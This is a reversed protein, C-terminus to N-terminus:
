VVCIGPHDLRSTVAAERLLRRRAESSFSSRDHLFKLAVRRGLREDEALWVEGQGGSGLLEILVYSGVRDKGDHVPSTGAPPREVSRKSSDPRSSPPGAFIRQAELLVDAERAVDPPSNALLEELSEGGLARQVLDEIADLDGADHPEPQSQSM